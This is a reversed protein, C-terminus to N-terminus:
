QISQKLHYEMLNLLPEKVIEGLRLNRENFVWKLQEQFHYAVSGAFCVDQERYGDYQAVNRTIFLDFAKKVLNSCYPHGINEKLFPVLSALFMNPKEQRYVRNLIEGYEYPYKDKFLRSLEAPMTMKLYDGVLLRGLVAGSGEDGLIFGLPPVHATIERGNYLCSNSGTGLICAIGANNGLTAHAAALLDSQVSASAEPFLELLAKEIVQAKEVNVVGAAYFYIQSVKDRLLSVRSERWEAIMDATSRFFPNAGGTIYTEHTTGDTYIWATKTSGSDAIIIM